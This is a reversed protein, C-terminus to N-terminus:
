QNNQFWKITKKLGNILETKPKWKLLKNAVDISPKRQRPDDQPLPKIVIGNM